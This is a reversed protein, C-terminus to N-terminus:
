SPLAPGRASGGRGSTWDVAANCPQDRNNKLRRGAEVVAQAEARSLLRPRRAQHIVLEITVPDVDVGNVLYRTDLDGELWAPVNKMDSDGQNLNWGLPRARVRVM